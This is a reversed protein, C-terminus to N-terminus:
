VILNWEKFTQEMEELALNQTLNVTPRLVGTKTNEGCRSRLNGNFLGNNLRITQTNTHLEVKRENATKNWLVQWM